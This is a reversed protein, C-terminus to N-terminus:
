PIDGKVLSYNKNNEVGKLNDLNIIKCNPYKNPMHRTFNIGILGTGGTVLIKSKEYIV